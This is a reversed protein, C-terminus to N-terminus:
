YSDWRAGKSDTHTCNVWVNGMSDKDVRPARPSVYAWGGQDNLERPSAVYLVKSSPQHYPTPEAEPIEKLYKGDQTLADLFDPYAGEKDGYFISMSSRIMGLRGRTRGDKGARIKQRLAPAAGMAALIGLLVLLLIKQLRPTGPRAPQAPLPAEAAQPPQAAPAAAPTPVSAAAAPQSVVAAGAAVRESIAACLNQFEPHEASGDWDTLVAAELRRFELPIKVAGLMVPVLVRRHHGESAETRVWQSAASAETWVVVVCRAGDLAEEIVQDFTKGAPIARDWWVKWGTKELAAVIPAVKQRDASAYSLFIDHV